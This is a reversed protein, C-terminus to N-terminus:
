EPLRVSTRVVLAADTSGAGLGNLPDGDIITFVADLRPEVWVTAGQQQLGEAIAHLLDTKTMSGDLPITFNGNARVLFESPTGDGTRGTVDGLIRISALTEDGEPDFVKDAEKTKEDVADIDAIKVDSFSGAVDGAPSVSVSNNEGSLTILPNGDEANEPASAAENLADRIADGKEDAGWQPDVDAIKATITKTKKAGGDGEHYEVEVEIEASGSRVPDGAVITWTDGAQAAVAWSALSAAALFAFLAPLRRLKRDQM